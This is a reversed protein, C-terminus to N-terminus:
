FTFYSPVPLAQQSVLTLAGSNPDISFIDTISIGNGTNEEVYLFRGTPEAVVIGPEGGNATPVNTVETLNGTGPDISFGTISPNGNCCMGVYIWKGSPHAAGASPYGRTPTTAISTLGGSAGDIRFSQLDNAPHMVYLFQGTPDIVLFDPAPGTIPVTDQETLMGNSPQAAFAEVSSPIIIAAYIFKGAPEMAIDSANASSSGIPTSGVLALNAMSDVSITAISSENNVQLVQESPSLLLNSIGDNCCLTSVPPSSFMGTDHDVAYSNVTFQAQPPGPTVEVVTFLFKGEPDITMDNAGALLFPSGQIPSLSGDAGETYIGIEPGQAAPSVYAFRPMPNSVMLTATAQVTGESATITSTGEGIGTAFGNRGNQNNVFVAAPQSSSWTVSSTVDRQTGDSYTGAATYQQSVGLRIAASAPSIEISTLSPPPSSSSPGSGCGLALSLLIAALSFAGLPFNLYRSAERYPIATGKQTDPPGLRTLVGVRQTWRIECPATKALSLDEYATKPTPRITKPIVQLM